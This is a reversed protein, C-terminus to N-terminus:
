YESVVAYPCLPTRSAMKIYYDRASMPADQGSCYIVGNEFACIHACPKSLYRSCLLVAGRGNATKKMYEDYGMFKNDRAMDFARVPECYDILWPAYKRCLARYTMTIADPNDYSTFSAWSHTIPSIAQADALIKNVDVGALMALTTPFCEDKQQKIHIM